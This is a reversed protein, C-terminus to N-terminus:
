FQAYEFGGVVTTEFAGMGLFAFFLAGYVAFRVPAPRAALWVGASLKTELISKGLFFVLGIGIYSLTYWDAGPFWVEYSLSPSFHTVMRTLIGLSEGTTGGAPFIKLLSILFFTRVLQVGKWWWAEGSIRLFSKAKEYWPELLVSSILILGNAAGWLVYRWSADHWLGTGLWVLGLAFVAPFVRGVRASFHKRGWKGFRVAPKSLSAPYFVYDRFWSSLSIHWRRWYEALSRSFFPHRFNEMLSIGYMRSAGAVIDMYGSFDAYAHIAYYGCGLLLTFGNATAYGDFIGTVIPKLNDAIVAKKFLGWLIRAAGQSLNEYSFANGEYLQGSLEGFRGIPGQTMQPFYTVFLLLKLPNGEPRVKGKYVDLVYGIAQLTYYSIGLPALFTVTPLQPLPLFSLLGNLSSLFFGSYKVTLLIGLNVFLMLILWWAKERKVAQKKRKKEEKTWKRRKLDLRGNEEALWIQYATVWICGTTVLIYLFNWTGMMGYFCLSVALLLMWRARKPLLYYAPVTLFFCFLFLPSHVTM